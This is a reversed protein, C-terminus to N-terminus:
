HTSLWNLFNTTFAVGYIKRSVNKSANPSKQVCEIASSPKFHGQMLIIPTEFSNLSLYFCHAYFYVDGQCLLLDGCINKQIWSLMTWFSKEMKAAFAPCENLFKVPGSCKIFQSKHHQKNLIFHM